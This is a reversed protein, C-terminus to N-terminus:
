RSFTLAGTACTVLYHFRVVGTELCVALVFVMGYLVTLFAAMAHQFRLLAGPRTDQRQDGRNAWRQKSLRFLLYLKVASGAIQSCYLLLPFSWRLRGAYPWLVLALLTRTVLVWVAYAILVQFGVAAALVLAMVPGSLASWIALRQDLVCWWIFWGCRRPGLALARSGNRLMNGSWRLLNQKARELPDHEINETTVVRADPVYLMQWGNRLLSYWTSKDDGSLFRFRGWLWHELHDAEITAIFEPAVVLEARFMSFRGTLTLVKRSLAHSQM